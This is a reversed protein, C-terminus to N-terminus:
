DNHYRKAAEIQAAPCIVKNFTEDGFLTKIAQCFALHEDLSRFKKKYLEYSDLMKDIAYQATITIETAKMNKETLNGIKNRKEYRQAREKNFAICLLCKQKSQV